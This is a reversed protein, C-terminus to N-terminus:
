TYKQIMDKCGHNLQTATFNATKISGYKAYKTQGADLSMWFKKFLMLLVGKRDQLPVVSEYKSYIDTVSLLFICKNNYKRILQM